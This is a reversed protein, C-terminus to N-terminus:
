RSAADTSHTEGGAGMGPARVHVSSPHPPVAGDHVLPARPVRVTLARETTSTTTATGRASPASAARPLRAARTPARHADSQPPPASAVARTTLAHGASLGAGRLLEARARARAGVPARGLEERRSAHLAPTSSLLTRAPRTCPMTGTIGCETSEARTAQRARQGRRTARLPRSRACPARASAARAHARPARADVKAAEDGRRRGRPPPHCLAPSLGETARDRRTVGRVVSSSSGVPDGPAAVM